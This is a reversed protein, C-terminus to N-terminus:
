LKMQVTVDSFHQVNSVLCHVKSEQTNIDAGKDLLLTVIDVKGQSAADMFATSGDQAYSWSLVTFIFLGCSTMNCRMVHCLMVDCCIVNCRIVNWCMVHYSMVDYWLKASYAVCYVCDPPIFKMCCPRLLFVDYVYACFVLSDAIDWLLTVIVFYWQNWQQSAVLECSLFSFLFLFFLISLLAFLRSLESSFLSSFSLLLSFFFLLPILCCRVQAAIHIDAGAAILAMAIDTHGNCCAKM